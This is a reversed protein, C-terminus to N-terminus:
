DDDHLERQFLLRAAVPAALNAVIVASFLWLPPVVGDLLPLAAVLGTLVGCIITARIAWSRRLVRRWDPVLKLPM